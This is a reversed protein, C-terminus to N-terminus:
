ITKSDNKGIIENFKKIYEESIKQFSFYEEVYKRGIEGMERRLDKCYFLLIINDALEKPSKEEVLFGGVGEKIAYPIGGVRTGVVPSECAMAELLITASGETDGRNDVISPLVFVDCAKMYKPFDMNPIFGPFIINEDVKLKKALEELFQREPGNGSLILKTNPFKELVYPMAELLYRFGKREVMRGSSFIILSNNLGYKERVYDGNVKPNFTDIDIGDPLVEIFKFGSIEDGAYKTADSIAVVKDARNLAYRILWEMITSKNKICPWLEAGYITILVPKRHLIKTFTAIFGPPIAWHANIIDIKHKKVIEFTKKVMSFIFPILQIKGKLTKIKEPMGPFYALGQLNSPWIYQFRHIKVGDIEEYKKLGYAHPAIIHIEMVKNIMSKALRHLYVNAFDDKWRPYGTTLILVNFKRLIM